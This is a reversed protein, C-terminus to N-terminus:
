RVDLPLTRGDRFTVSDVVGGHRLRIGAVEYTMTANNQRYVYAMGEPLEGLEDEDPYSQGGLAEAEASTSCFEWLDDSDVFALLSGQGTRSDVQYVTMTVASAAAAPGLIGPTNLEDSSFGGLVGPISPEDAAGREQQAAIAACVDPREGQALPQESSLYTDGAIGGLTVLVVALVVARTREPVPRPLGVPPPVAAPAPDSPLGLDTIVIRPGADNASAPRRSTM